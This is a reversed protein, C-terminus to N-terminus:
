IIEPSFNNTGYENSLNITIKIAFTLNIAISGMM